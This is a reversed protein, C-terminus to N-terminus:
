RGYIKIDWNSITGNTISYAYNGNAPEDLFANVGFRWNKNTYSDCSPSCSHNEVLKAMTSSASTLSLEVNGFDSSTSFTVNVEVFEIKTISCGSITITNTSSNGSCTKLSDSGGLSLFTKATNVAKEADVVGFGYKHNFKHGGGNTTWGSDASDVQRATTALIYRIDRWTLNPNANLMLAVVGSVYPTASSTGGFNNTYDGSTNYGYAGRIDTTTIGLEGSDGNSPACVLLNAGRESYWSQKGKFTVACIANVGYFNAQGDYNSDDTPTGTNPDINGNRGNGAAWLYFIGKGNRGNNVGDIIASKWLSTAFSDNLNGTGDPVGWSNNSIAVIEKNRTMADATNSDTHAILLNYGVLFALPAVGRVGFENCRAASVGAVSTGHEAVTYASSLDNTEFYYNYSKDKLVNSSLDPHDVDIGDDVVAIVIGYGWNGTNWVPVVNGDENSTGGGQGTNKLHWQESFQIDLPTSDCIPPKNLEHILWLGLILDNNNKEKKKLLICDITSVGFVIFILSYIFAKM